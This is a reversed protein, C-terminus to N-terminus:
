KDMTKDCQRVSITKVPMCAKATNHLTDSFLQAAEEIGHLSVIDMWKVNSLENSLKEIDLKRYDYITRKFSPSHKIKHILKVCPMSHDSCVPLLVDVHSIMDTCCTLVLDTVTASTETIRTPHTVVQQLNSFNIVDLLQPSPNSLFNTNFDRLM